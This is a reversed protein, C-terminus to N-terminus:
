PARTGLNRHSWDMVLYRLQEWRGPENVMPLPHEARTWDVMSGPYMRVNEYGLVQSLVFWDTASWHGTNCFITIADGRGAGLQDAEDRLEDQDLLHASGIEFFLDSDLSVAGPLTGRATAQPAAIRGEYYLPPRADVLLTNQAELSALVQDRTQTWRADFQPQWTSAPPAGPEQDSSPYGAQTWAALGGNLISLDRMGLSKLTWYVRAAGGFDTSDIGAYVIVAHTDPTLGLGQVLATLEKMPPVLGPDDGVGRWLGYPASIASPVHQLAYAPAERVDIVRVAGDAILPQLEEPTLLPASARAGGAVCMGLLLLWRLWFRMSAM